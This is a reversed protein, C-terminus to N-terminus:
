KNFKEMLKSVKGNAKAGVAPTAPTVPASSSKKKPSPEGATPTFPSAGNMHGNPSRPSSPSAFGFGGNNGMPSAVPSAVGNMEAPEEATPSGFSNEGGGNKPSAVSPEPEGNVSGKPSTADTLDEGEDANAVDDGGSSRPSQVPSRVNNELVEEANATDHPEPQSTKQSSPQEQNVSLFEQFVKVDESYDKWKKLVESMDILYQKKGREFKQTAELSNIKERLINVVRLELLGILRTEAKTLDTKKNGKKLIERIKKISESPKKNGEDAVKKKEEEPADLFINQLRNKINKIKEREIKIEEDVKSLEIFTPFYEILEEDQIVDPIAENKDSENNADNSGEKISKHLGSSCSFSNFLLGRIEEAKENADKLRKLSEELEKQLADYKKKLATYKSNETSASNTSASAKALKKPKVPEKPKETAAKKETIELNSTEAAKKLFTLSVLLAQLEMKQEKGLVTEQYGFIKRLLVCQRIVRIVWALISSGGGVEQLSWGKKVNYAAFITRGLGATRMEQSTQYNHPVIKQTHENNWFQIADQLSCFKIKDSM